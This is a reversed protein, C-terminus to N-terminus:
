ARTWHVTKRWIRWFAFTAGVTFLTMPTYLGILFLAQQTVSAVVIATACGIFLAFFSLLKFFARRELTANKDTWVLLAACLLFGFNSAIVDLRVAGGMFGSIMSTLLALVGLLRLANVLLSARNFSSVEVVTLHVRALDRAADEASGLQKVALELALEDTMGELQHQSIASDIHATIEARVQEAAEPALKKTAVELWYQLLDNM